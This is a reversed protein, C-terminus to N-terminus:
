VTRSEPQGRLNELSLLGRAISLLVRSVTPPATLFYGFPVTDAVDLDVALTYGV